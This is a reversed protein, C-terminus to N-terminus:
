CQAGCIQTTVQSFIFCFFLKNVFRQIKEYLLVKLNCHGKSACQSVCKYESIKFESKLYKTHTQNSFLHGMPIWSLFTNTQHM